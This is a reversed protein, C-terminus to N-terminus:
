RGTADLLMLFAEVLTARGGSGEADEQLAMAAELAVLDALVGHARFAKLRNDLRELVLRRVLEAGPGAESVRRQANEYDTEIDNLM